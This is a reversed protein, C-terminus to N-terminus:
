TENKPSWRALLFLRVAKPESWGQYLNSRGGTEECGMAFGHDRNQIKGRVLPLSSLQHPLKQSLGLPLVHARTDEPLQASSTGLLLHYLSLGQIGGGLALYTYSQQVVLCAGGWVNQTNPDKWAM